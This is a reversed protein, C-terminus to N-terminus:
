RQVCPLGAQADTAAPLPRPSRSARGTQAPTVDPPAPFGPSEELRGDWYPSGYGCSATFLAAVARRIPGKLNRM